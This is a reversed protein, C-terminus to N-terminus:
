TTRAGTVDYVHHIADHLLYRALTSVTFQSGDDREGTRDWQEGEVADFQDAIWAGAAALETAVIQPDQEGYRDEVATKDQDWSVFLPGDEILMRQLRGSFVRFVDRVHCGYELPSWTAPDPRVTLDGPVAVADSFVDQWSATVDRLMGVVQEPAIDRTDLGCEPCPRELVWTWSKDDPVIGDASSTM